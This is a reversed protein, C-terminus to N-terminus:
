VIRRASLDSELVAKASSVLRLGSGNGGDAVSRGRNVIEELHIFVQVVEPDFQIGAFKQLERIADEHSLASRYPRATTM